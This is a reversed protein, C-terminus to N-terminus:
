DYPWGESEPLPSPEVAALDPQGPPIIMPAPLRVVPTRLEIHEAAALIIKGRCHVQMEGSGRDYEIWTGDLWRVHAKDRSVVPPRDQDSYFAGLVFGIELGLPLFVCLVHEGLDPMWYDQDCRTKHSLVPLTFTQLMDADRCEVRVRAEEPIVQVVFGLRVMQRLAGELATIRRIIQEFPQM